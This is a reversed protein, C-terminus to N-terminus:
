DGGKPAPLSTLLRSQMLSLRGGGTLRKATPKPMTGLVPLGVAAAIDDFVRVRRDMLELAFAAGIALIAGVVISLLTNIFIKPSSPEAPPTAQALVNVNSQTSQSELSTQNLRALVADYARQANEVDRVIVSGEDRVGKLKLVKERQAELSARIEATRQRNITNSIVVGGTVRGVEADIRKKTEAINAKIEVVQPHSDGLKANLEQLRAENRALEVKLSSVIPNNLVEQLRDGSTGQAQSQRSGSEAQLAQLAVLQSSLENLRNNEVDLREDNAIIGKENQFASLRAQAKELAERAEKSRTDFFNSYQKAPDVRLELVTDLYAQVFANALGAAFRPDPSKYSVSIVNSERSPKVDLFKQFTEALWQEISGKGDTAEQWQQRIQPNETLKLNRVVKQAVRDSQIIDVQTAMFAPLMLAPFAGSLPDQKMDVVVSASAVYQKPLLLSIVLTTAVTLVFILLAVWKRARLISLFQGFSM